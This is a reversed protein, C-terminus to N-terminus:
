RRVEALRGSIIMVGDRIEVKEVEPSGPEESLDIPIEGGGLLQALPGRLRVVVDGDEAVVDAEVQLGTARLTVVGEELQVEVLDGPIGLMGTVSEEGLEARFTGDDAAPLQDNDVQLDSVDVDVNTLTVDLRDLTAGNELPVDSAAVQATPINGLLLRLGVPWGSFEVTADTGLADSVDVATRQEAYTTVAQDVIFFLVGFGILVALLCGLRRM